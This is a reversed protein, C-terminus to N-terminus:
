ARKRLLVMGLGVAGLLAVLEFATSPEPVTVSSTSVDGSKSGKGNEYYGGKANDSDAWMMAAMLLFIATTKM